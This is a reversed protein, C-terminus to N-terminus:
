FQKSLTQSILLIFVITFLKLDKTKKRQNKFGRTKKNRQVICDTREDYVFFKTQSSINQDKVLVISM